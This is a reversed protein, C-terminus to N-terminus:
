NIKSFKHLRSLVYILACTSVGSEEQKYQKRVIDKKYKQLLINKLLHFLCHPTKSYCMHIIYQCVDLFCKLFYISFSLCVVYFM